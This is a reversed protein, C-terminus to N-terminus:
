RTKVAMDLKRHLFSALTLIDLADPESITWKVKPEHATTNRFTGFFGKILNMLGTHESKESETLLCNFALLPVGTIGKGFAEDVLAAGDNTLGAKERIKDAVSKTAEFVAHFYNDQLLETRCFRIVDAHVCRNQLDRKLKYARQEAESLTKAQTTNRLKGDEGLVFGSFALVTNIESRRNEFLERNSVYRVPLMATQILHVINNGCNDQTQKRHLAEFLRERKTILPAVDEIGCEKLLDEIQGGTFGKTTEGLVNCVGKLVYPDFPSITPM